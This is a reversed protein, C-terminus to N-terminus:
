ILSILYYCRDRTYDIVTSNRALPAATGGAFEADAAAAANEKIKIWEREDAKLAEFENKPMTNKHYQYVENLLADWKEAVIGSEINMDSQTMATDLNARSYNEIASARQYFNERAGQKKQEEANVTPASPPTEKVPAERVPPAEEIAPASESDESEEAEEAEQEGQASLAEILMDKLEESDTEEIGQELTKIAAAIDGESMQEQAIDIYAQVTSSTTEETRCAILSLSLSLVLIIVAIKKM